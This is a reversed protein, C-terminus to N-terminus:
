NPTPQTGCVLAYFCKGAIAMHADNSVWPTGGVGLRCQKGRLARGRALPNWWFFFFALVQNLRSNGIMRFKDADGLHRLIDVAELSTLCFGSNQAFRETTSWHVHNMRSNSKQLICHKLTFLRLSIPLLHFLPNCFSHFMRLVVRDLTPGPSTM